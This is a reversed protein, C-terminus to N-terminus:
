QGTRERSARRRARVALVLWALAFGLAFAALGIMTGEFVMASHAAAAYEPIALAGFALGTTVLTRM